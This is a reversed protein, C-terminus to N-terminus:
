LLQVAIFPIKFIVVLGPYTHITGATQQQYSVVLNM